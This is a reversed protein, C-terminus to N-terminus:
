KGMQWSGIRGLKWFEIEMTTKEWVINAQLKIDKVRGCVCLVEM